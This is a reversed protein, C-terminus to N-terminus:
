IGIGVDRVQICLNPMQSKYLGQEMEQQTSERGRRPELEEM